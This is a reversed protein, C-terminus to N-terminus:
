TGMDQVRQIANTTWIKFHLSGGQPLRAAGPADVTYRLRGVAILWDASHHPFFVICSFLVMFALCIYALVRDSESDREQLAHLDRVELQVEDIQSRAGLVYHSDRSCSTEM